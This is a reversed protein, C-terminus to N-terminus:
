SSWDLAKIERMEIFPQEPDETTNWEVVFTARLRRGWGIGSDPSYLQEALASQRSAYARTIESQRSSSSIKYTFKKEAGPIDTEFCRPMAEIVARFTRQGEVPSAAFEDLSGGALDLLPDILIKPEGDGRRRVIVLTERTEDSESGIVPFEINFPIDLYDELMNRMASGSLADGVPPLPGDLLGGELPGAARAPEAMALREALTRQGFFSLLTEEAQTIDDQKVPESRPAPPPTAAGQSPTRSPAHAPPGPTDPPTTLPDRPDVSAGADGLPAPPNSTVERNTKGPGGPMFHYLLFYVTAASVVAFLIPVAFRSVTSGSDRSPAPTTRRSSSQRRSGSRSQAESTSRKVDVKKEAKREPLGRPAPPINPRGAFDENSRPKERPEPIKAPHSTKPKERPEAAFSAPATAPTAQPAQINEGCKPCPGEIGAMSAPVTLPTNCHTCTFQLVNPSM